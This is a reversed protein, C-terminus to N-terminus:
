NRALLLIPWIRKGGTELLKTTHSIAGSAIRWSKRVIACAARSGQLFPGRRRRPTQCVRCLGRRVPDKIDACPDGSQAETLGEAATEEIQNKKEDREPM